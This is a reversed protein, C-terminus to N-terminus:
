PTQVWTASMLPQLWLTLFPISARDGEEFVSERFTLGQRLLAGCEFSWRDGLRVRNSSFAWSWCQSSAPLLWNARSTLPTPKLDVARLHAHTLGGRLKSHPAAKSLCSFFGMASMLPALSLRHNRKDQMCPAHSWYRLSAAFLGDFPRHSCIKQSPHHQALSLNPKVTDMKCRCHLFCHWSLARSGDIRTRCDTEHSLRHLWCPFVTDHVCNGPRSLQPTTMASVHGFRPWAHCAPLFAIGSSVNAREPFFLVCFILLSLFLRRAFPLSSSFARLLLPSHGSHRTSAAM